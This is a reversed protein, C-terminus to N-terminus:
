IDGSLSNKISLKSTRIWEIMSIIQHVPKAGHLGSVSPVLNKSYGAAAIVVISWSCHVSYAEDAM